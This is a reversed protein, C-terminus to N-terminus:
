NMRKAKKNSRGDERHSITAFDQPYSVLSHQADVLMLIVSQNRDVDGPGCLGCGRGPEIKYFRCGFFVAEDFGATAELAERRVFLNCAEYRGTWEPLDQTVAWAEHTAGPEPRTPGQVVGLGSDAEFLPVAEALWRPTPLCDSDTFAIVDGEALERARNRVRGVAGPVTVVRVPVGAGSALDRCAEGTGDSSENDLVLIEYDPHDLALLATLCRVMQTRRDRVPVAVTIM